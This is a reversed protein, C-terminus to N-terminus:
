RLTGGDTRKGRPMCGRALSTREAWGNSEGGLRIPLASFSPESDVSSRGRTARAVCPSAAGSRLRPRGLSGSRNQHTRWWPRRALEVPPDHCRRPLVRNPDRGSSLLHSGRAAARRSDAGWARVSHRSSGRKAIRGGRRAVGHCCESSWIRGIHGRFRAILVIRVSGYLM